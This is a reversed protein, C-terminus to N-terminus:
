PINGHSLIQSEEKDLMPKLIQKLLLILANKLILQNKYLELLTKM